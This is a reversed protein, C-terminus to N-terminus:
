EEDIDDASEVQILPALGAIERLVPMLMTALQDGKDKAEGTVAKMCVTRVLDAHPVQDELIDTLFHAVAPFALREIQQGLESDPIHIRVGIREHFLKVIESSARQSGSIVLGDKFAKSFAEGTTKLGKSVKKRM